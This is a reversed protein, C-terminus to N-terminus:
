IHMEGEKYNQPLLWAVGQRTTVGAVFNRNAGAM